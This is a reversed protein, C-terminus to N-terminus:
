GGEADCRAGVGGASSQRPKILRCVQVLQDGAVIFAGQGAVGIKAFRQGGAARLVAVFPPHMEVNRDEEFRQWLEIRGLAEQAFDECNM